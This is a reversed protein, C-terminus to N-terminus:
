PVMNNRSIYGGQVIDNTLRTAAASPRKQLGQKFMGHGSYFYLFSIGFAIPLAMNMACYAFVLTGLLISM